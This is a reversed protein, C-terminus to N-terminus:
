NSTRLALCMREISWGVDRIAERKAVREWRKGRSGYRGSLKWTSQNWPVSRKM